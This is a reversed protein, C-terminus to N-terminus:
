GVGEGDDGLSQALIVVLAAVIQHGDQVAVEGLPGVVEVHVHEIPLRQHLGHVVGFLVGAEGDPDGAVRHVEVAEGPLLLFLDDAPGEVGGNSKM